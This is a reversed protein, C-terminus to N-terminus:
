EGHRRQWATKRAVRAREHRARHREDQRQQEEKAGARRDGVERTLGRPLGRGRRKRREVRLLASTGAASRGGRAASTMPRGIMLRGLEREDTDATALTGAVAGHRLVTVEDAYAMVERFKHTIM